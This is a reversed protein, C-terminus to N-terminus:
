LQSKTVSLPFSSQLPQRSVPVMYTSYPYGSHVLDEETRTIWTPQMNGYFLQLFYLAVIKGDDGVVGFYLLTEVIV